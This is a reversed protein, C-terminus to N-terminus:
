FIFKDNRREMMDVYYYGDAAVTCAATVFLRTNPSLLIEAEDQIASYNMVSRGYLAEIRFIIGGAGEAFNKAQKHMYYM